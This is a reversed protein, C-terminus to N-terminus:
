SRRRWPSKSQLINSEGSGDQLMRDLVDNAVRMGETRDAAPNIENRFDSATNSSSRVRPCCVCHLPM